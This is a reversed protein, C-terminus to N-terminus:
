RAMSRWRPVSAKANAHASWAARSRHRRLARAVLPLGIVSPVIWFAIVPLRDWIPLKPGNDVYFATLLVIYSVSMGLIHVNLWGHWRRKRAAYGVSAATFAAGGLFFLYGSQPWRMIALVSATAFVVALAWFYVEGAAPHRGRRKPSRLAVAGTIVCVLGAAIHVVLVGGFSPSVPAGVFQSLLHALGQLDPM